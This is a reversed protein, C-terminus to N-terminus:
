RSRLMSWTSVSEESESDTDVHDMNLDLHSDHDTDVLSPVDSESGHHPGPCKAEGDVRHPPPHFLLTLSAPIRSFLLTCTHTDCGGHCYKKNKGREKKNVRWESTLFLLNIRRTCGWRPRRAGKPAFWDLGPSSSSEHAAFLESM